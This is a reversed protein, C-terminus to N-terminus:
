WGEVEMSAYPLQCFLVVGVDVVVIIKLTHCCVDATTDRQPVGLPILATAVAFAM